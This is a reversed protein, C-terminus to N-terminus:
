HGKCCHGVLDCFMVTLQRREAERAGRMSDLAQHSAHEEAREGTDGASQHGPEEKAKGGAWVLVKGDEDAAVHKADILDAKLDEVDDDDLDFRRKLMRYAVRGERELVERVQMLTEEFTM